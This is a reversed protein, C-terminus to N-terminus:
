ISPCVSPSHPSGHGEKCNVAKTQDRSFLTRSILQPNPELLALRKGHRNRTEPSIKQEDLDPFTVAEFQVNRALPQNTSGMLPNYIDNCFGNLDRFRISNGKCQQSDDVPDTTLGDKKLRAVLRAYEQDDMDNNDPKKDPVRMEVFPTHLVGAPDRWVQTYKEYTGSNDFLNFKIMEMRQLELDLLAGTIAHRNLGIIPFNGYLAPFGTVKSDADGTAWYNRWDIWPRPREWVAKEGGRSRATDKSVKGLFRQSRDAAVDFDLSTCGFATLLLSTLLLSATLTHM